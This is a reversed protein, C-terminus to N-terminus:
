NSIEGVREVAMRGEYYFAELDDVLFKKSGALLYDQEDSTLSLQSPFEYSSDLDSFSEAFSTPQTHIVIDDDGFIPGFQSQQKAAKDFKDSKLNMKFPPLGRLNVLSFIFAKSSNIFGDNGLLFLCCM